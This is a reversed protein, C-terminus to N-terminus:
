VFGLRRRNERGDAATLMAMLQAAEVPAEAKTTVAATYITALACTPPLPAVLVIGQTSLIETAQTCGIPRRGTSAALARMATAGNPATKLRSAVEDWIGLARLVRAFHIGATAQEPDPFHIEDSKLLAMRLADADGVAPPADSLRVAVATEVTGLDAASGAAVHGDKALGDILARTLIVLDAPEGALLRARMAGVAGFTGAITCGTAAEFAPRLAEVLGQAAGGSLIRFPKM